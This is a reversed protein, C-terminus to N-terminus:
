DLSIQERGYRLTKAMWILEKLFSKSRKLRIDSQKLLRQRARKARLVVALHRVVVTAALEQMRLQKEMDKAYM